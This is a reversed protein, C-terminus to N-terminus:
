LAHASAHRPQMIVTNCCVFFLIFHNAFRVFGYKIAATHRFFLQSQSFFMPFTFRVLFYHSSSCSCYCWQTYHPLTESGHLHANTWKNSFIRGWHFIAFVRFTKDHMTYLIIWFDRSCSLCNVNYLTFGPIFKYLASDNDPMWFAPQLERMHLFFVLHSFFVPSNWSIYKKFTNYMLIFTVSFIKTNIVSIQGM